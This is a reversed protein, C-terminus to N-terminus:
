YRRNVHGTKCKQGESLTQENPLCTKSTTSGNARGGALLLALLPNKTPRAGMEDEPGLGFMM